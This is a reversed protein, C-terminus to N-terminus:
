TEAHAAREQSIEAEQEIWLLEMRLSAQMEECRLVLQEADQREQEAMEARQEIEARQEAQQRMEANESHEQQQMTAHMKAQLMHEREPQCFLRAAAEEQQMRQEMEARRETQQQMEARQEMQKARLLEIEAAVQQLM